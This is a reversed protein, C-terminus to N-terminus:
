SGLVQAVMREFRAGAMHVTDLVGADLEDAAETGAPTPSGSLVMMKRLRHALTLAIARYFRAAFGTDRSLRDAVVSRPLSLVTAPTLATVSGVPARSDVFSIEGVVEGPRLRVIPQARRAATTVSFSGELIVHLSDLARGEEVLVGGAELNRRRGHRTMWEVDADSLVSFILLVKRM